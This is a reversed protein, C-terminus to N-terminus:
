WGPSPFRRRSNRRQPLQVRHHPTGGGARGPLGAPLAGYRFCGRLVRRRPSAGHPHRDRFRLHVPRHRARGPPHVHPAPDHGTGRRRCPAGVPLEGQRGTQDTRLGRARGPRLHGGVGRHYASGSARLCSRARVPRTRTGAAAADRRGGDPGSGPGQPLTRADLGFDAAHRPMITGPLLVQPHGPGAHLTLGTRQLRPGAPAAQGM